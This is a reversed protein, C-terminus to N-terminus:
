LYFRLSCFVLSMAKRLWKKFVHCGQVTSVYRSQKQVNSSLFSSHLESEPSMLWQIVSSWFLEWGGRRGEFCHSLKFYILRIFLTRFDLRSDFGSKGCSGRIERTQSFKGLVTNIQIDNAHIWSSIKSDSIKLSSGKVQCGYFHEINNPKGDRNKRSQNRKSTWVEYKFFYCLSFNSAHM